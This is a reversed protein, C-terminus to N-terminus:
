VSCVVLQADYGNVSLPSQGITPLALLYPLRFYEAFKAPRAFNAFSALIAFNALNALNALQWPAQPQCFTAPFSPNEKGLSLSM